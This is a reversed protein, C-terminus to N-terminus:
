WKRSFEAYKTNFIFNNNVTNGLKSLFAARLSKPYIWYKHHSTTSHPLVFYPFRNFFTILITNFLLKLFLLEYKSFLKEINKKDPIEFLDIKLNRLLSSRRWYKGYSRRNLCTINPYIKYRM